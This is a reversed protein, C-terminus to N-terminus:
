TTNHIFAIVRMPGHPMYLYQKARGCGYYAFVIVAKMKINFNVTISCCLTTITFYTHVTLQSSTQIQAVHIIAQCVQLPWVILEWGALSTHHCLEDDVEKIM